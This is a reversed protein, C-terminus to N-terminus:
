EERFRVPSTYRVDRYNKHLEIVMQRTELDYFSIFSLMLYDVGDEMGQLM